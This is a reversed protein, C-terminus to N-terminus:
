GANTGIETERYIRASDLIRHPSNAHAVTLTTEDEAETFEIFAGTLRNEECVWFRCNAATYHSRCARLREFYRERELAPVTTRQITLVRAM